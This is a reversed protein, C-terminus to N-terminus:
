QLLLSLSPRQIDFKNSVPLPSYSLIKVETTHVSRVANPRYKRGRDINEWVIGRAQNILALYM